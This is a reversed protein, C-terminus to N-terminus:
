IENNMILQQVLTSSVKMLAMEAEIGLINLEHKKNAEELAANTEGLSICRSECEKNEMSLKKEAEQLALLEDHMRGNEQLQIEVQSM